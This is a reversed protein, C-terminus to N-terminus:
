DSNISSETVLGNESQKIARFITTLISAIM